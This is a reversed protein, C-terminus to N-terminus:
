KGHSGTGDKNGRGGSSLKREPTGAREVKSTGRALLFYTSPSPMRQMAYFAYDPILPDPHPMARRPTESREQSTKLSKILDELIKDIESM